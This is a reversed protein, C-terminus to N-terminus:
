GKKIGLRVDPVGGLLKRDHRGIWVLSDSKDQYITCKKSYIKKWHNSRPLQTDGTILDFEVMPRKSGRFAVFVKNYEFPSFVMKEAKGDSFEIGLRQEDGGYHCSKENAPPTCSVFFLFVAIPVNLFHMAATRKM